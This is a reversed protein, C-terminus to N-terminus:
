QRVMSQLLRGLSEDQHKIMNINTEYARTAEIMDMMESVSNTGSGELYGQKVQVGSTAPNVVGVTQYLSDGVKYLEHYSEPEVIALPRNNGRTGDALIEKISGDSGIEIGRINPSFVVPEGITNLVNYGDANILQRQSNVTFAGNRSLFKEEGNSVQFFGKGSLAIDYTGNTQELPGESFDIEVSTLTLGGSHANLNGPLEDPIGNEVDYTHHSQFIALDRKFSTTGVNAINNAIVDLRKSQAEAGQSSLFIGYNM